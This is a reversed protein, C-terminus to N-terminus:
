YLQALLVLIVYVILAVLVVMEQYYELEVVVEEALALNLV